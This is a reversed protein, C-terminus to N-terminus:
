RRARLAAQARRVLGQYQNQKDPYWPLSQVKGFGALAEVYRATHGRQSADPLLGADGVTVQASGYLPSTDVVKAGASVYQGIVDYLDSRPAGPLRDFTLFTAPGLSGRPFTRRTSMRHTLIAM